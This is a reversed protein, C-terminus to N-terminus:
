KELVTDLREIAKKISEADNATSFGSLLVFEGDSYKEGFIEVSKESTYENFDIVDFQEISYQRSYHNVGDASSYSSKIVDYLIIKSPKENRSLIVKKLNNLVTKSMLTFIAAIVSLAASLGGIFSTAVAVTSVAIGLESCLIPIGYSLATLGLSGWGFNEAAESAGNNEEIKSIVYYIYPMYAGSLYMIVVPNGNNNNLKMRDYIEFHNEKLSNNFVWIGSIIDQEVLGNKYSKLIAADQNGIVKYDFAERSPCDIEFYYDKGAKLAIDAWYRWYYTSYTYMSQSNGSENIIDESFKNQENGTHDKIEYAGIFKLKGGGTEYVFISGPKNVIKNNYFNIGFNYLGANNPKIHGLFDNNYDNNGWRGKVNEVIEVANKIKTKDYSPSAQGSTNLIIIGGKKCTVTANRKVAYEGNIKMDSNGYSEWSGLEPVCTRPHKRDINCIGFGSINGPKTDSVTILPRGDSTYVGHDKPLNLVCTKSGKGCFVEAGRVVYEYGSKGKLEQYEYMKQLENNGSMTNEKVM